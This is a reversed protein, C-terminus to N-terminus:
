SFGWPNHFNITLVVHTAGFWIMNRVDGFMENRRNQM